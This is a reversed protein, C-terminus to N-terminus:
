RTVADVSEDTGTIEVTLRHPLCVLTEGTRRIPGMRTCTGDPCDARPIRVTGGSIEVVNVGHATAFEVTCDTDLPLTRLLRGDQRVLVEAPAADAPILLLLPLAALVLALALIAFDGKKM